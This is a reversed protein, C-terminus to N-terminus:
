LPDLGYIITELYDLNFNIFELHIRLHYAHYYKTITTKISAKALRLQFEGRREPDNTETVIKVQLEDYRSSTDKAPIKFHLNFKTSFVHYYFKQKM